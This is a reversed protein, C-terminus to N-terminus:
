STSQANTVAVRCSTYSTGAMGQSYLLLCRVWAIKFCYRANEVLEFMDLIVIIIVVTASTEIYKYM